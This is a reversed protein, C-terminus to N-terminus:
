VGEAEEALKFVPEHGTADVLIRGGLIGDLLGAQVRALEAWKVVGILRNEELTGGSGTIAAKGIKLIEEETLNAPINAPVTM